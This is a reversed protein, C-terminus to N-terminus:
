IEPMDDYYNYGQYVLRGLSHIFSILKRMRSIVVNYNEVKRNRQKMVELEENFKKKLDFQQLALSIDRNYIAKMSDLYYSYLRMMMGALIKEEKPSMKTLCAYRMTRRVEDAVGEIFYGSFLHNVLDIANLKFNKLSKLPNDLNYLVSRYLLHYLRNVDLDRENINEYNENTFNSCAEKFMARAIIDMKKILEVVSAKDMNLFDKAILTDPGQEMIELAILNQFVEQLQKINSRLNDGKLIITRYNLVYASNVERKILHISKKDTHIIKTKELPEQTSEKKSLTLNSGNDDIYILDGKVLKNQRIWSKPLSVVFSNKGFSILKRYEM